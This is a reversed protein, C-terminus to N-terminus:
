PTQPSFTRRPSDSAPLFVVARGARLLETAAMARAEDTLDAQFWGILFWATHTRGEHPLEALFAMFDAATMKEFVNEAM